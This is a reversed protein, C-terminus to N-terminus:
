ISRIMFKVLIIPHKISSNFGQEPFLCFMKHYVNENLVLNLCKDEKCILNKVKLIKMYHALSFSMQVKKSLIFILCTLKTSSMFVVTTVSSLFTFNKPFPCLVKWPLFIFNGPFWTDESQSLLSLLLLNGFSSALLKM